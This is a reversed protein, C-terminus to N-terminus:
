ATGPVPAALKRIALAFAIAIIGWIILYAGILLGFIVAAAFFPYVIFIIAFIVSILGLLILLMRRPIDRGGVLAVTIILVGTILTIVAIVEALFAAFIVPWIIAATGALFGVIGAILYIVSSGSPRSIAGAIMFAGFLVLLIGIITAIVASTIGPFLVILCGFILSLLGIMLYTSWSVPFFTLEYVTEPM